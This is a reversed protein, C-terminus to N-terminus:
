DVDEPAVGAARLGETLQHGEGEFRRPLDGYGADVLVRKDAAHVLLSQCPARILGREDTLGELAQDREAEAVSAFLFERPFAM